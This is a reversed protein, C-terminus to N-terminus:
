EFRVQLALGLGYNRAGANQNIDPFLFWTRLDVARNLASGLGFGLPYENHTGNQSVVRLGFLPGLWLAHSVQVWLHLPVSVVTLTPDYFIIPVYIGTDFRIFGARLSVPLGFMFGFRSGNETPLYARLEVGLDAGPGRAVAWRFHLEPNAVRDHVTGYTETDFPRGYGDAQTGQGGDDLRFGMRLGLEFDRTIGASLELNLGFGDPGAPTHGFGMGVDFAVDGRPLVIGRYVWPAAAAAPRAAVASLVVLSAGVACALGLTTALGAVLGTAFRTVLGTSRRAATTTTPRM